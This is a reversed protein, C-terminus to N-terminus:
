VIKKNVICVFYLLTAVDIIKKKQAIFYTNEHTVVYVDINDISEKRYFNTLTQINIM